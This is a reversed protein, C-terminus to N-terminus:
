PSQKQARHLNILSQATSSTIINVTPNSPLSIIINVWFYELSIYLTAGFLGVGIVDTKIGWIKVRLYQMGNLINFKYYNHGM